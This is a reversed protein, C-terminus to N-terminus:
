LVGLTHVAMSGSSVLLLISFVQQLRHAAIRQALWRGALIGALAGLAFPGVITWPLERGSAVLLAAAPASILATAMLSTGVVSHMSLESISRLTPVIFIGGGIGLLTALFGSMGGLTSLALACRWSWVLRGTQPDLRCIRAVPDSISGTSACATRWLRWAAFLSLLTFTATLLETPLTHAAWVGLPAFLLGMIAILAAARYRVRSAKWGVVAGLTTAACVALLAVPVAQQLPWRLGWMLLPVAILGGGAGALGLVVGVAIGLLILM